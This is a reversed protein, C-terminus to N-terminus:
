STKLHVTEVLHNWGKVNGFLGSRPFEWHPSVIKLQYIHTMIVTIQKKKLVYKWRGVKKFQIIHEMDDEYDAKYLNDENVILHIKIIM